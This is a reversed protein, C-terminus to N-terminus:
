VIQMKERYCNACVPGSSEPDSPGRSGPVNETAAKPDLARLRTNYWDERTLVAGCSTCKKDEYRATFDKLDEASFKVQPVCDQSCGQLEPWRSCSELHDVPDLGVEAPLKATPCIVVTTKHSGAFIARAGSWLSRVSTALNM